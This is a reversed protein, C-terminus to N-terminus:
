NKLIMKSANSIFKRRESRGQSYGPKKTAGDRHLTLGTAAM